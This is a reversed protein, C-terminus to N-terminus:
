SLLRVQTWITQLTCICVLFCVVIEHIAPFPNLTDELVTVCTKEDLNTKDLKFKLSLLCSFIMSTELRIQYRCNWNALKYKVGNNVEFGGHSDDSEIHDDFQSTELIALEERIKAM